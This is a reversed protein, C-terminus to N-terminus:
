SRNFVSLRTNQMDFDPKIGNELRKFNHLDGEKVPVFITYTDRLGKLARDWKEKSFMKNSM